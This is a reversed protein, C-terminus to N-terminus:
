RSSAQGQGVGPGPGPPAGSPPSSDCLLQQQQQQQLLPGPQHSCPLSQLDKRPPFNEQAPSAAQPLVKGQPIDPGFDIQVLVFRPVLNPFGAIFGRGLAADKQRTIGGRRHNQRSGVLCGRDLCDCLQTGSLREVRTAARYATGLGPVALGPTAGQRRRRLGTQQDTPFSNGERLWAQWRGLDRTPFFVSGELALILALSQGVSQDPPCSGCPQAGQARSQSAERRREKAM